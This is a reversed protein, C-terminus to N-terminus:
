ESMGVDLAGHAIEADLDVVGNLDGLLDIDSLGVRYGWCCVHDAADGNGGIKPRDVEANPIVRRSPM